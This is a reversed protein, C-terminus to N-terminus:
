RTPTSVKSSRSSELLLTSADLSQLATQQESGQAGSFRFTHYATYWADWEPSRERLTEEIEASFLQKENM